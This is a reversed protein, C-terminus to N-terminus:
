GASERKRKREAEPLNEQYRTNYLAEYVEMDAWWEPPQDLFGGEVLLTGHQQFARYSRKVIDYPYNFGVFQWNPITPKDLQL